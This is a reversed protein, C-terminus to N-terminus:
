LSNRFERLERNFRPSAEWFLPIALAQTFLYSRQKALLSIHKGMNLSVISDLEGYSLLIPKTMQRVIHDNNLDRSLMGRRVHPPVIMNVGLSLLFDEPSPEVHTCLKVFKQLATVSETTCGM